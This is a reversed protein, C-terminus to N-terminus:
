VAWEGEVDVCGLIQELGVATPEVVLHVTFSETPRSDTIARSPM